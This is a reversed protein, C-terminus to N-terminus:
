KKTRAASSRRYADFSIGNLVYDEDNYAFYVERFSIDGAINGADETGTDEIM